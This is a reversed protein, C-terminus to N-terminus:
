VGGLLERITAARDTAKVLTEGVLVARAGLGSLRVVDARTKVGSEAILLVARPIRAALRGVLEVDVTFTGLNRTNVGVAGVGLALAADLERAEHVEVLPFLGLERAGTALRVLADPALCRVILLVADAGHARAELLQYPDLVFDKRLLPVAVAARAAALDDLTGRFFEPETLVSIASAGAGAYIRALPGAEITPDLPGRSPSARKIEAILATPAGARLAGLFDRTPPMGSIAARLAAEPRATRAAELRHRTAALIRELM